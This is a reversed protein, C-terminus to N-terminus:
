GIPINDSVTPCPVGNVGHSKLVCIFSSVMEGWAGDAEFAFLGARTWGTVTQVGGAPIEVVLAVSALPEAEVPTSAVVVVESRLLLAIRDARTLGRM